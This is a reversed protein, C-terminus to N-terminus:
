ILPPKDLEFVPGQPPRSDCEERELGVAFPPLLGCGSDCATTMPQTHGCMSHHHQHPQGDLPCKEGEPCRPHDHDPCGQGGFEHCHCHELAAVTCCMGAPVLRAFVGSQVLLTLMIVFLARM